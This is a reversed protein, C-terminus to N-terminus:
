SRSALTAYYAQLVDFAAKREGKESVLGKRNWYDQVGQYLRLPARFDKLVWPSMGRVTSQDSLMSLQREYVEVQYEESFVRMEGPSAHLGLKAGAGLESVILPKGEGTVFKIRDMNELMIRRARESGIPTVLALGSSYYWGFYQNIAPVDVIRELGDDVRFVWEDRLWGLTAPLYYKLLFPQLVEQGTLLAATLLRSPDEHRVHKALEEFFHDRAESPPTENGLSWLIVSARNRDRAILESFMQQGLKLTAENEFDVAWYVPLEAWVLLGLYDAVRAMTDPHPYHALRVFNCGLEKALGLTEEAHAYSHARGGGDLTEDHISIGRLYIPEGNLLIESGRTAITRFGVADEIRHSGTSVAVRYLKPTTPSWREPRAPISFEARGATNTVTEFNIGLEPVDVTVRAPLGSGAVEVFGVIVDGPEDRLRLEWRSLHTEPVRVLLVNRTIGGYNHWDTTPTPIDEPTRRNDVKVVLLNDGDRLVDTIDFNFPTFGGEHQGVLRGNVYVSTLYNAAGFYLFTKEGPEAKYDFNRKYWVVGQYFVLRPDQTNWDGPVELVLGNEFSFEALDAPHQPEQALPAIGGLGGRDYPDIVAQWRGNLSQHPASLPDPILPDPARGTNEAVSRLHDVTVKAQEPWAGFWMYLTLGLSAVGVVFLFAAVVMSSRHM